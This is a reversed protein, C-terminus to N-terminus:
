LSADGLKNPIVKAIVAAIDEAVPTAAAAAPIAAAAAPTAEAAPLIDAEPTTDVVRRQITDAAAARHAAVATARHAVRDATAPPGAASDATPQAAMARPAALVATAVTHPIPGVPIDATAAM